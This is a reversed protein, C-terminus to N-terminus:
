EGGGTSLVRALRGGQVPLPKLNNNTLPKGKYLGTLGQAQLTKVLWHLAVTENEAIVVAAVGGQSHGDFETCTWARM